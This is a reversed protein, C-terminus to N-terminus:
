KLTLIKDGFKISVINALDISKVIVLNEEDVGFDIQKKCTHNSQPLHEKIITLEEDTANRGSVFYTTERKTNKNEAIRLYFKNPDNDSVLIIGELGKVWTMGKPKEVDYKETNDSRNQVASAYDRQFTVNIYKTSKEVNWEGKEEDFFKAYALSRANKTGKKMKTETARYVIQGGMQNKGITAVFTAVLDKLDKKM